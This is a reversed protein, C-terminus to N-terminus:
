PWAARFASPVLGLMLRSLSSKIFRQRAKGLRKATGNAWRNAELTRLLDDRKRFVAEPLYYSTVAHKGDLVANVKRELEACM